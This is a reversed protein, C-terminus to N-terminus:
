KSVGGLLSVDIIGGALVSRSTLRDPGPSHRNRLEVVTAVADLPMVGDAVLGEVPDVLKRVHRVALEEGLGLRERAAVLAM